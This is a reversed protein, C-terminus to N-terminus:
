PAQSESAYPASVVRTRPAAAPAGDQGTALEPSQGTRLDPVLLAAVVGIALVGAAVAFVVTYGTRAAYDAGEVGFAAVITAAVTAGISGGVNRSVTTVANAEGIQAQPVALSILHSQSSAGIGIGFGGLSIALLIGWHYELARDYAVLAGLLSACGLLLAARTGWRRAIPTLLMSGVLQTFAMPILYLSATEASSGFGYGAVEPTQVIKPTLLFITYMGFATLVATTNVTWVARRHLLRLDTLPAPVRLEWAVWLGLMLAGFAFLALTQPATWGWHLGESTALLVSGLGPVFLVAGIWDVRGRSRMPSEPVWARIAAGAVAFLVLAGWFIWRYSLHGLILGSLPFAAAGGVGWMSSIVSYGVVRRRAPFEDRVVALCISFAGASVGQLARGALLVGLSHSLGCVLSGLCSTGCMCLIVRRKGFMDGLRGLIPIAVSSVLVPLALVWAVSNTSIGLESQITPLAPIVATHIAGTAFVFLTLPLLILLYRRDSAGAAGVADPAVATRPAV